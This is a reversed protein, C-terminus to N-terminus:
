QRPGKHFTVEATAEIADIYPLTYKDPTSITLIKLDLEYDSFHARLLRRILPLENEKYAVVNNDKDVFEMRLSRPRKIYYEVPKKKLYLPQNEHLDHTKPLQLRFTFGKKPTYKKTLEIKLRETEEQLEARMEEKSILTCKIKCGKKTQKVIHSEIDLGKDMHSAIVEFYKRPILGIKGSGGVSGSRYVFICKPDKPPKWFKVYDGLKCHLLEAQNANDLEFTLVTSKNTEVPSIADYPEIYADPLDLRVGFYGIDGGGRDWGGVIKAPCSVTAGQHGASKLTNRFYRAHSKLLHGVTQHSIEVRIALHDYPNDDEHVLTAQVIKNAPEDTRGGCIRELANQYHSEGMIEVEFDGRGSLNLVSKAPVKKESRSKGFLWSFFGM